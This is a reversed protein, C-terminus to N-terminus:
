SAKSLGVKEICRRVSARQDFTADNPLRRLFSFISDHLPKLISQTWVDVLAFVRVKGAPEDKM